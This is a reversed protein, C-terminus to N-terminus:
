QNPWKWIVGLGIKRKIQASPYHDRLSEWVEPVDVRWGKNPQLPVPRGIDHFAVIRGMPGYREWDSDVCKHKHGGDIFVLDYPGLIQAQAIVTEDRSDGTILHVDHHKKRLEVACEQLDYTCEPHGLDVSVLKTGVSMVRSMHWLSGGYKSGIELYSKINERSMLNLFWDFEVHDQMENAICRLM